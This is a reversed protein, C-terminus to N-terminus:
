RDLPRKYRLEIETNFYEELTKLFKNTIGKQKKNM